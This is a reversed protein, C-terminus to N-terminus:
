CWRQIYLGTLLGDQHYRRVEAAKEFPPNERSARAYGGSLRGCMDTAPLSGANTHAARRNDTHGGSSPGSAPGGAGTIGGQAPITSGMFASHMPLM